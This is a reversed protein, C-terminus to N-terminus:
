NMCPMMLHVLSPTEGTEFDVVISNVVKGLQYCRTGGKGFFTEMRLGTIDAIPFHFRFLDLGVLAKKRRFAIAGISTSSKSVLQTRTM